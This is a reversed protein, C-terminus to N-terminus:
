QGQFIFPLASLFIKQYIIIYYSDLYNILKAISVFEGLWCALMFLTVIFIHIHRYYM